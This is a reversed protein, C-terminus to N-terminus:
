MKFAEGTGTSLKAVSLMKKQIVKGGKLQSDLLQRASVGATQNLFLVYLCLAIILATLSHQVHFSYIFTLRYNIFKGQSFHAASESFWIDRLRVMEYGSAIEDAEWVGYWKGDETAQGPPGHSYKGMNPVYTVVSKKKKAKSASSKEVVVEANDELWLARELFNYVVTKNCQRWSAKAGKEFADRFFDLSQTFKGKAYYAVAVDFAEIHGKVSADVIDASSPAIVEYVIEIDPRNPIPSLAVSDDPTGVGDIIHQWLIDIPRVPAGYGGDSM